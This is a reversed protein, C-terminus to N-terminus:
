LLGPSVDPQQLVRWVTTPDAVIRRIKAHLHIALSATHTFGNDFHV